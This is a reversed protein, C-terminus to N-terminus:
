DGAAEPDDDPGPAPEPLRLERPKADAMREPTWYAIIEEPAPGISSHSVGEDAPEPNDTRPRHM